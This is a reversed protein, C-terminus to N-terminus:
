EPADELYGTITCTTTFFQQFDPALVICAVETEPEAYLKVVGAFIDSSNGGPGSNKTLGVDISQFQGDFKTGLRVEASVGPVAKPFITTNVSLYEVVLRKGPPVTLMNVSCSSVPCSLTVASIQVPTQAAAQVVVPLPTNTVTVNGQIGQPPGALAGVPWVFVASLMALAGFLRSLMKQNTM